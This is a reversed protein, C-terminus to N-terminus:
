GSAPPAITCVMVRGKDVIKALGAARALAAAELADCAQVVVAKLGPHPLVAFWTPGHGALGPLHPLLLPYDDPREVGGGHYADQIYCGFGHETTRWVGHRPLLRYFADLAAHVDRVWASVHAPVKPNHALRGIAEEIPLAAGTDDLNNAIAGRLHLAFSRKTVGGIHFLTAEKPMARALTEMELRAPHFLHEQERAHAILDQAHHDLDKELVAVPSHAPFPQGEFPPNSHRTGALGEAYAWALSRTTKAAMMIRHGHDFLMHTEQAETRDAQAISGELLARFRAPTWRHTADEPLGMKSAPDAERAPWWALRPSKPTGDLVLLGTGIIERLGHVKLTAKRWAAGRLALAQVVPTLPLRQHASAPWEAFTWRRGMADYLAPVAGKSTLAVGSAYPGLRNAERCADLLADFTELVPHTM